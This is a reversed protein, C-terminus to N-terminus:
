FSYRVELWTRNDKYDKDEADEGEFTAPLSSVRQSFRYGLELTVPGYVPRTGVSSEIVYVKDDRGTHLPDEWYLRDGTFFYRQFQGKVEINDAIWLKGRPRFGTVLEYLDREYSPDGDDSVDSTETVSDKARAEVDSYTYTAAFRWNRIPTLACSLSGNWEWNDNELFPRNYFRMVRGVELTANLWRRVRHSYALDVGHRVSKFPVWVIPVTRPTYPPRDSLHRIYAPPAYSYGIQFFNRPNVYQRLRVQYTANNKNPNRGYLYGLYTLYLRTDAFRLPRSSFNLFVRPSVILDDYTETHFKDPNENTRFDLIAGDSYRLINDDYIFQLAVAGAPKVFPRAESSRRSAPRERRRRAAASDAPAAPPAPAEGPTAQALMAEVPAQGSPTRLGAPSAGAHAVMGAIAVATCAELM